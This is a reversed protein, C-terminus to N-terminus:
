VLPRQDLTYALDALTAPWAEMRISLGVFANVQQLETLPM